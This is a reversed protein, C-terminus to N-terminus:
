PMPHAVFFAWMEAWAAAWEPIPPAINGLGAGEFLVIKDATGHFAIVPVPRSPHCDKWLNYAGSVPGIAAIINSLDCAVRNTMGGGNSIGTAYVRKPDINYRSRLSKILETIFQLDDRSERGTGDNWAKNLGDPYAVIFGETEAKISMGSLAEQELSNAGLGHFNIVLAVPNNEKYGTPLVWRYHRSTGNVTLTGDM